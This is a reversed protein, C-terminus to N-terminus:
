SNHPIFARRCGIIQLSSIEKAYPASIADADCQAITDKFALMYM